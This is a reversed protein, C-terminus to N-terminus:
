EGRVLATALSKAQSMEEPMATKPVVHWAVPYGQQAQVLAQWLDQHSVAKGEKTRWQRALWGKVWQTAGDKLYDSTTYLHVPLRKKLAQLGELAAQIHLRNSSTGEVCGSQEKVHERYRMVVAWGGRKSKGSYAVATFLHVAKEDDLPLVPRPIQASALADARENWKNGAHGKVWQWSIEHRQQEASLLLWLDQNKVAQKTSTMWNRRKWEPLWQTIGRKLYSSDTWLEIKHPQELFALAETAARLEMRNNTTKLESGYLELPEQDPHLLIAAWGGPGPNPNCGGDTYITLTPLNSM